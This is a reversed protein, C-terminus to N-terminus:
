FTPAFGPPCAIGRFTLVQRSADGIRTCSVTSATGPLNTPYGPQTALAGRSLAQILADNQRSLQAQEVARLQFAFDTANVIAQMDSMQRNSVAQDLIRMRMMFQNVGPDGSYGQAVIRNYWASNVCNRFINFSTQNACTTSMVTTLGPGSFSACSSLGAIVFSFFVGRKGIHKFM